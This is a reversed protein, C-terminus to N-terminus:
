FLFDRVPRFSHMAKVPCQNVFVAILFFFLTLMKGTNTKAWRARSERGPREEQLGSLSDISQVTNM